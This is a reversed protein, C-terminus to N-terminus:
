GLQLLDLSARAAGGNISPNIELELATVGGLEVQYNEEQRTAGGPSFTYQQRVLERYSQGNDPSWRLVFEQTREHAQEQFVIRIQRLQQPQDFLLRITQPGPAAARWGGSGASFAAEIPHEADESTLEASALANLDFWGAGESVPASDQPNIVRKRM